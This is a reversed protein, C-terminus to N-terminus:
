AGRRSPGARWAARRRARRRRRCDGGHARLDRPRGLRDRQDPDGRGEPEVDGPPPADAGLMAGRAGSAPAERREEGAEQRDDPGQDRRNVADGVVEEEGVHDLVDEEQVDGWDEQDAALRLQDEPRRGAAQDAQLLGGAPEAPRREGDREIDPGDPDPMERGEVVGGEALRDDVDELVDGVGCGAAEVPPVQERRDAAAVAEAPHPRGDVHRRGLEDDAQEAQDEDERRVGEVREVGVLV